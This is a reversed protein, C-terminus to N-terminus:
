QQRWANMIEKTPLITRFSEPIMDIEERRWVTQNVVDGFYPSCNLATASDIGNRRCSLMYDFCSFGLSEAHRSGSHALGPYAKYVIHYGNKRAVSLFKLSRAYGNENEGTTVCWLVNHGGNVPWGYSSSIHIHVASFRHPRSLALRQAYQAAGSWGWLFYGGKPLEYTRSLYEVGKDWAVAVNEFNLAFSKRDNWELEDWNRKPNWLGRTTRWAVVALRNTDAFALLRGVEDRRASRALRWRIDDARNALMCLCLVGDVVNSVPRRLFLTLMHQSMTNTRVGYSIVEREGLTEFERWLAYVSRSPMWSRNAEACVSEGKIIDGNGLDAWVPRLNDKDTLIASFYTQVFREFRNDRAHGAKPIEIWTWRRGVARGDKFYSLSAGLRVDEGGCAVIGCPRSVDLAKVKDWWAASQACWSLVRRPYAEAFNSVFHAGGSFGFLLIPLEGVNALKLLKLLAAGSGRTVDYYGRKSKLVDIPSKFTVGVLALANKEAYESWCRERLFTRGDCNVGPVVVMVARPKGFVMCDICQTTIEADPPLEFHTMKPSAGCCLGVSNFFVAIAILNRIM